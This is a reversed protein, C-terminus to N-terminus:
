ISTVYHITVSKVSSSEGLIWTPSVEVKLLRYISFCIHLLIPNMILVFISKFLWIRSFNWMIVWTTLIMNLPTPIYNNETDCWIALVSLIWTVIPLFYCLVLIYQLRCSLSCPSILCLFTWFLPRQDPVNLTIQILWLKGPFCFWYSIHTHTHTHTYLSLSLPPSQLSM